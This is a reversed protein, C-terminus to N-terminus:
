QASARYAYPKAAVRIQECADQIQTAAIKFEPEQVSIAFEKLKLLAINIRGLEDKAGASLSPPLDYDQRFVKLASDIQGLIQSEEHASVVVTPNTRYRTHLDYFSWVAKQLEWTAEILARAAVTTADDPSVNTISRPPKSKQARVYERNM